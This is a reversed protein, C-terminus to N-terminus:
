SVTRPTDDVIKTSLKRIFIRIYEENFKRIHYLDGTFVFAARQLPNLKEVLNWIHKRQRSDRWYVNSSYEIVDMTEQVTPVYFNNKTIFNGIKEYDSNAIISIVNCLTVNSSWYHRNGTLLKENNANGYGSTMRCNSTLTSHSTPNFLPNAASNHM